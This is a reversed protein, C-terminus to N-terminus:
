QGGINIFAELKSYCPFNVVEIRRARYIVFPHGLLSFMESLSDKTHFTWHAHAVDDRTPLRKGRGSEMLHSFVLGSKKLREIDTCDPTTIAVCVRAVRCAEQLARFVDKDTRLHEIVEVLMVTDFSKSKFPIKRCDGIRFRFNPFNEQCRAILRDDIDMGRYGRKHKIAWEAWRGKGCGADLISRGCRDRLISNFGKYGPPDSDPFTTDLHEEDM